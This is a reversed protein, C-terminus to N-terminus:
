VYLTQTYSTWTCVSTKFMDCLSVFAVSVEGKRTEQLWRDAQDVLGLLPPYPTYARLHFRTGVLLPVEMGLIDAEPTNTARELDEVFIIQDEVQDVLEILLAPTFAPILRTLILSCKQTSLGVQPTNTARELDEVFIIQDEV